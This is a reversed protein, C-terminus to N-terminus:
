AQSALTRVSLSLRKTRPIEEGQWVDESAFNIGHKWEHRAAGHIKLVDGLKFRLTHTQKGEPTEREFIFNCEGQINAILVTEGFLRESDKHPTFGYSVEYSNVIVQGAQVAGMPALFLALKEVYKTLAEPIPPAPGLESTASIFKKLFHRSKRTATYEPWDTGM